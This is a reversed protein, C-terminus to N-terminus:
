ILPIQILELAMQCMDEEKGVGKAGINGCQTHGFKRALETMRIAAFFRASAVSFDLNKAASLIVFYGIQWFIHGCVGCEPFQTWKWKITDYNYSLSQNERRNPACGMIVIRTDASM